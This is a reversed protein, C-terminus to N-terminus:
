AIAKASLGTGSFGLRFDYNETLGTEDVIRQSDVQLTSTLAGVLRAIPM